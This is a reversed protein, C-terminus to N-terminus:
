RKLFLTISFYFWSLLPPSFEILSHACSNVEIEFLKLKFRVHEAEQCCSQKWKKVGEGLFSSCELIGLKAKLNLSVQAEATSRPLFRM